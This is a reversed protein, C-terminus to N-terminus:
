SGTEDITLSTGAAVLEDAATYPDLDGAAVRSALAELRSDGPLGGMQQRLATLAIASIEERARAQRRRAGEGSSDLWSWHADLKGVLDSLGDGSV